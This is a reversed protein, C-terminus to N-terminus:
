KRRGYLELAAWAAVVVCFVVFMVFETGPGFDTMM